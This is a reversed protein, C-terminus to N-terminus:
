PTMFSSLSDGLKAFDIGRWSFIHGLTVCISVVKEYIMDMCYIHSWQRQNQRFIFLIKLFTSFFHALFKGLSVFLNAYTGSIVSFFLFIYRLLIRRDCLYNLETRPVPIENFTAKMIHFLFCLNTCTKSRLYISYTPLRHPSTEARSILSKM